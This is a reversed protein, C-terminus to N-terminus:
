NVTQKERLDDLSGLSLWIVWEEVDLDWLVSTKLSEHNNHYYEMVIKANLYEDGCWLMVGGEDPEKKEHVEFRDFQEQYFGNCGTHWLYGIESDTFNLEM